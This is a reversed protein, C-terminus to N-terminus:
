EPASAQPADSAPRRKRVRVRLIDGDRSTELSTALIPCPLACLRMARRSRQPDGGWLRVSHDSAQVEVQGQRDEPAHFLVMISEADESADVPTAFWPPDAVSRSAIRLLAHFRKEASAELM